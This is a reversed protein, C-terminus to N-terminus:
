STPSPNHGLTDAGAVAAGARRERLAAQVREVKELRMDIRLAMWIALCLAPIFGLGAAYVLGDIVEPSVEGPEAGTPLGIVDLAIGSYAPGFVAALKAIFNIASYFGGEQRLGTELEHEDTIDAVISQTNVARLMFLYMFLLMFLFNLAFVLTGDNDPLLGALKLPYLWLCNLLLAILAFRLQQCKHLRRGLWPLTALVLFVALLSPVALVVSVQVPSFEWVYTWLLMNLTSMVGYAMMIGIEYGVLLRFSRNRTTRVLDRTLEVLSLTPAAASRTSVAPRALHRTGACSVTALLWVLACSLAGYLPYNGAVFRGDSDGEGTFIFLLASAPLLVTTLFIFAMRTGLVESRQQYDEALETSLALHPISFTTIFTRVWLSWFLLWTALLWKEGVVPAPPAFLGFFGIGLPLISVVMFPHRRGYRSRLRDSWAGVLPDSVADWVLSIAIIIGTITGDLGLVQTYFLLVLMLYAAEKVAYVAGGAGYALRTRRDIM